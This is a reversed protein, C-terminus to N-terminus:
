SKSMFNLINMMYTELYNSLFNLKSSPDIVLGLLYIVLINNYYNLWKSKMVKICPKLAHEQSMYEDFVGVINLTEIIFLNTTPYYIGFLTNIANKFVKLLQCIKTCINQQTHHLVISSIDYRMFDCLLEKYENSQCLLKYTSNWRTLIDSSFKLSRM